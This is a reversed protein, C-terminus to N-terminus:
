ADLVSCAENLLTWPPWGRTRMSPLAPTLTSVVGLCQSARGLRNRVWFGSSPRMPAGRLTGAREAAVKSCREHCLIMPARVSPLQNVSGLPSDSLSRRRTRKWSILLM